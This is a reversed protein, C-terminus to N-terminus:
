AVDCGWIGKELSCGLKTYSKSTLIENHGTQAKGSEDKYNWGKSYDGCVGELGPTSSVECLWGGVFVKEFDAAKGPALVQGKTGPNLEHIMQGNGDICTKKANAELTADKTFNPLGM